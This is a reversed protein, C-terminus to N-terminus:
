RGFVLRRREFLCTNRRRGCCYTSPRLVAAPSNNTTELVMLPRPSAVVRRFGKGAPDEHMVWGKEKIMKQAHEYKYYPGVPKTPKEFAPDNKDVVVQTILTVVDRKINEKRFM